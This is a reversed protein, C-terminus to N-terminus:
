LHESQLLQLLLMSLLLPQPRRQLLQHRRRHWTADKLLQKLL